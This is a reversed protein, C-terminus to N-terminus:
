ATAEQPDSGDVERSVTIGCRGCQGHIKDEFDGCDQVEAYPDRFEVECNQCFFWRSVERQTDGDIEASGGDTLPEGAPVEDERADPECGGCVWEKQVAGNVRTNIPTLKDHNVLCRSCSGGREVQDNAM